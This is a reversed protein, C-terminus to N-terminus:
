VGWVEPIWCIYKVHLYKSLICKWILTGSSNKITWGRKPCGVPVLSKRTMRISLLTLNKETDVPFYFLICFLISYPTRILSEFPFLWKPFFYKGRIIEKKNNACMSYTSIGSHSENIKWIEVPTPFTDRRICKFKATTSLISNKGGKELSAKELISMKSVKGAKIAWFVNQKILLQLDVM